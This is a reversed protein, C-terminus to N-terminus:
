RPEDTPETAEPSWQAVRKQLEPDEWPSALDALDTEGAPGTADLLGAEYAEIAEISPPGADISEDGTANMLETGANEIEAEFEIKRMEKRVAETPPEVAEREEAATEAVTGTGTEPGPTAGFAAGSWVDHGLNTRIPDDARDVSPKPDVVTLGPIDAAIAGEVIAGCKPCAKVNAPIPTSCWPCTRNPEDM